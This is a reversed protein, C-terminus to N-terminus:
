MEFGNHLSSEDGNVTRQRGVISLVSSMLPNCIQRKICSQQVNGSRYCIYEPIRGFVNNAFRTPFIKMRVLNGECPGDMAAPDLQVFSRDQVIALDFIAIASPYSAFTDECDYM